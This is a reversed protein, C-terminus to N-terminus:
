PLDPRTTRKSSSWVRVLTLIVTGISRVKGQIKRLMSTCDHVKAAKNGGFAEATNISIARCRERAAVHGAKAIRKVADGNTPTAAQGFRSYGSRGALM